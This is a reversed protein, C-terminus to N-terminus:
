CDTPPNFNVPNISNVVNYYEIQDVNKRNGRVFIGTVKVPVCTAGNQAVSIFSRMNNDSYEYGTVKLSGGITANFIQKDPTCFPQFPVNLAFSSCSVTRNHIEEAIVYGKKEKFLLLTTVMAQRYGEDAFGKFFERQGNADYEYEGFVYSRRAPDWDSIVGSWQPTTCCSSYALVVLSLFSVCNTTLFTLPPIVYTAGCVIGCVIVTLLV